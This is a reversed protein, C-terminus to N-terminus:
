CKPNEIIKMVGDQVSIAFPIEELTCRPEITFQIRGFVEFNDTAKLRLAQKYTTNVRVWNVTGNVFPHLDVEEKSLPNEIIEGEFDINAYSGLDMYFKGKFARKSNPSIFHSGNKLELSVVLYNTNNDTTEIEIKITCLNNLPKPLNVMISTDMKLSKAIQNSQQSYVNCGISILILFLTKFTNM